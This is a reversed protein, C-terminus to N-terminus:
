PLHRVRVAQLMTEAVGFECEVCYPHLRLAALQEVRDGRMDVLVLGLRQQVCHRASAPLYLFLELYVLSVSQFQFMREAVRSVRRVIEIEHRLQRLCAQLEHEM